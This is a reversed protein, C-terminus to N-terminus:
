LRLAGSSTAVDIAQPLAKSVFCAREQLTSHTPQRAAGQHECTELFEEFCEIALRDGWDSGIGLQQDMSLLMAASKRMEEGLQQRGVLAVAAGMAFGAAAVQAVTSFTYYLASEDM